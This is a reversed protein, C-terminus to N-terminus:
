IIKVQNKTTRVGHQVKKKSDSCQVTNLLKELAIYIKTAYLAM